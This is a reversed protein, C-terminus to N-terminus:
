YHCKNIYSSVRLFKSIINNFFNSLHNWSDRFKGPLMQMGPLMERDLNNEIPISATVSLLLLCVAFRIGFM